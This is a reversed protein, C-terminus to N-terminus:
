RWWTDYPTPPLQRKHMGSRWLQEIRTRAAASVEHGELYDDIDEYRVGLAEEDPIAPRDDELDATPVKQWTEDPAGLHRLLEAGQRKTLGALPTIDAAADGFKTSFGTLNEAAHDTGIVLLGKEGALAFQAVMRLRAKVNGRNFDNLTTRGLAAAVDRDVTSTADAINIELSHDPGIFDLALLADEADSQVGHPLRVAWFAAEHGRGRLEEVALQALKGGLTSDQGGSIGLVFGHLKTSELYDALFGVRRTVEEAPDITPTVHLHSSIERQLDAPQTSMAGPYGPLPDSNDTIHTGLPTKPLQPPHPLM